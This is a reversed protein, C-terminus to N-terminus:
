PENTPLINERMKGFKNFNKVLNEEALSASPRISVYKIPKPLNNKDNM